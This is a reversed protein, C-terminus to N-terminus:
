SQIITHLTTVFIMELIEYCGHARNLKFKDQMRLKIMRDYGFVKVNNNQYEFETIFLSSGSHIALPNLVYLNYYM